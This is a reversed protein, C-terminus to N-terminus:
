LGFRKKLEDVAKQGEKELQKKGQNELDKKAQDIRSEAQKKQANLQNEAKKVEGDLQSKAQNIQKELQAKQKGIEENVYAEIKKRAEDIKAQIQKQLGKGLEPGLNSNIDFPILPFDGQGKATLTVVPIGAFVAKLIEELVPEKAKVQYDVNTFNNQLDMTFHKLAVLAGRMELSGNAKSFALQVDPSQVLEKGELPYSGVKVLYQINSDAKRNDLTLKALFGEVKSAPFDGSLNAITPRGILVQNSTIDKIEGRINGANPSLGAQSSIATRKIWVLPYSNPRGFEYSIGKERPHPQIAVEAEDKKNKKMLNPPMYKEALDRYRQAKAMYPGMYKMFLAKSLSAADLKPIRFHQELSKIDVRVQKELEKYQADFAKLDASLDNGASKITKYKADAEKFIGDLEQISAQVEQPTKFDKYKVKNIRDGLAQIEKGQPLSKIREDWAKQKAKFDQELRTLMAKSPLSEQLKDLQANVDSGALLSAIDGLVNDSYEKQAADLAQQKLKESMGPGSSPPPPPAVRGPRKRLVGFEIQEVVAENVVLKARLLADWLMGFRIDGIKVADHTPKESDTLEVGQIRLNAKFFSTELNAINVEAGLAKYGGWELARRLHGDFFFHFYLGIITCIILFPIIAEWRIPGKTKKKKVTSDQTATTM